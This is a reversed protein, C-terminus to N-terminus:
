AQPCSRTRSSPARLPRSPFPVPGHGAALHGFFLTDLTLSLTEVEVLSWGAYGQWARSPGHSAAKPYPNPVPYPIVLSLLTYCPTVLPLMTLLHLTLFSDCPPGCPDPVALHEFLLTDLAARMGKSPEAPRTSPSKPSPGRQVGRQIGV